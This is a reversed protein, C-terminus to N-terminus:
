PQTMNFSPVAHRAGVILLIRLAQFYVLASLAFRKAISSHILNLSYPRPMATGKRLSIRPRSVSTLTSRAKYATPARCYRVGVVM